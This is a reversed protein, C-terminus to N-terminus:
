SIASRRASRRAPHQGPFQQARRGAPQAALRRASRRARRRAAAAGHARARFRRDARRERRRARSVNALGYRWAVGVGGRLRGTLRVLGYGALALAPAWASSAASCARWWNARRAGPELSDCVPRRAGARLRPRIAAAARDRDEAAGAGAAHEEAAALPPLAFGILMAIVTVLAIPCRRSRPRRCIPASSIACCGPSGPSPRLLRALRRGRGRGAGAAALEIVSISLVFNQSAGMCKMLAVTDIHRAAYRRAGM